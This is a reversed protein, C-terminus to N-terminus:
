GDARTVTLRGPLGEALADARHVLLLFAKATSM